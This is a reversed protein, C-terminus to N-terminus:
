LSIEGNYMLVVVDPEYSQIYEIYSSNYRGPSPDLYRIEKFYLSMYQSMPRGYSHSIFLAKLENNSENNKIINEVYGGRLFVMYKNKYNKDLLRKEDIFCEYFDGSFYGTRKGNILHEYNFDTSFAPMIISFNEKKSYHEGVRIGVSGLFSSEYDILKYQDIDQFKEMDYEKFSVEFKEYLYKMVISNAQFAAECTWHHDTKYYAEDTFYVRLDCVPVGRENLKEVLLAENEKTKDIGYGQLDEVDAYSKYPCQVFLFPIDLGKTYQYLTEINDSVNDVAAYAPSDKFYLRGNKDSVVDLLDRKLLVKQILGFSNIWKDDTQFVEKLSKEFHYTQEKTLVNENSIVRWSERYLKLIRIRNLFINYCIFFVTNISIYKIIKRM